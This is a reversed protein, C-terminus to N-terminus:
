ATLFRKPLVVRTVGCRAAHRALAEDLAARDLEVGAEVWLNKVRLARDVTAEIRGVFQDRQLLPCVYWGFRRVPAPKYVEWVYDFGFVQQVLKRDWLIPDLPGLIRIRGDHDPFRARRFGAPALYPRSSGEILVEELLGDDIMADVVGNNRAPELMSWTAGGARALFGAAQVREYIAWRHFDGSPKAHAVAPLAREPVDYLKTNGERGCVVIRCQTWLVEIAMSAAKATGKWGSWDIPDVAGHDSLGAATLPGHARIEDLVKELVGEPIRRMREASRWWPTETAHERYMPFATAPLLCREKAWHEFAGGPYVTRFWDGRKLGDIRAMFVLDPNTGIADLPDLQVHRLRAIVGFVGERVPRRLLLHGTLFRRARERSIEILRPSELPLAAPPEGSLRPASGNNEAAVGHM